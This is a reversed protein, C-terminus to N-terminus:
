KWQFERCGGGGGGSSFVRFLVMLRDCQGKVDWIPIIIIIM